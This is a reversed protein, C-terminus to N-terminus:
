AMARPPVNSSIIAPRSVSVPWSSPWALIASCPAMGIRMPIHLGPLRLPISGVLVGLVIGVFIPILQPRNLTDPSNGLEEAVTKLGDQPGVASVQDGFHLTLTARPALEVGARNIRVVTVGARHPFNLERLTRRLVQTRTVVMEERKIDGYDDTFRTTSPRGLAAVLEALESRPGSARYVDGTQLLTQATPISVVRDRLLRTFVIGKNKLLPHDRLPQGVYASNTVELTVMELPPRRELEQAALAVLEDHLNVRFMRRMLVIVLMPGVIGFPYSVAYALNTISLMEQTMQPTVKAQRLADQGAALGPTTTFAGAYLGVASSHPYHMWLTLGATAAAGLAVVALALANLLWGESKFSALFGPGVQLGISYVFIILGFESLFELVTHRVGFGFQGLLLAAFLVGSIGLRFGRVRIAGLALGLVVAMALTAMGAAASDNAFIQRIWQM